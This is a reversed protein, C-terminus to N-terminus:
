IDLTVVLPLHDSVDVQPCFHELVTINKSVFIMDVVATAYGPDTKQKMNFTSSLEHKFVNQLHEEINRITQTQPKANFDGALIVYEKDKIHEVIVRSMTLRRHNDVDGNLDWPGHTNFIDLKKDNILIEVHQLNCPWERWDTETEESKEQYPVDYFISNESIIPFKSFIVNGQEIKGFSRRDLICKSFSIYEYGLEKKLIEVSRFNRDWAPNSGNYAEQLAVVDVDEKKLFSLMGDFLKGGLWINLTLFKIKM